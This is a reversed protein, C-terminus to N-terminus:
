LASVINKWNLALVCSALLSFIVLKPLLTGEIVSYGVYTGAALLLLCLPSMYIRGVVKPWENKHNPQLYLQASQFEYTWFADLTAGLAGLAVFHQGVADGAYLYNLGLFLAVSNRYAVVPLWMSWFLGSCLKALQEDERVLFYLSQFALPFHIACGHPGIWLFNEGVFLYFLAMVVHHVFLDLGFKNYVVEAVFKLLHVFFIEMRWFNIVGLYGFFYMVCNLSSVLNACVICRRFMRKRQKKCAEFKTPDRIFSGEANANYDTESNM